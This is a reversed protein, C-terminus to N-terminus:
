NFLVGLCLPRLYLSHILVGITNNPFHKSNYIISVWKEQMYDKKESIEM